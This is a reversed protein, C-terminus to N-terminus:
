GKYDPAADSGLFEEYTAAGSAHYAAAAEPGIYRYHWPEFEYGTTGTQGDPYRLIFGYKWANAALWQGGPQEAYCGELPCAGGVTSIDAALGTQHESFGPRASTADAGAQGLQDVYRDYLSTQLEFDRYGSTMDLELGDQAAAAFMDKVAMAADHRLSHGNASSVGIDSMAVLDDPAYDQPSLPHHKNVLVQLSSASAIDLGAPNSASGTGPASTSAAAGTEAPAQSAAAGETSAPAQTSGPAQVSPTATSQQWGTEQGQGQGFLRPLLLWALLGALVLLVGAVLLRRRAAGPAATRAATASAALPVARGPTRADADADPRPIPPVTRDASSPSKSAAPKSSATGSAAPKAASTARAADAAPRSAAAGAGAAAASGATRGSPAANTRRSAPRPVELDVDAYIDPEVYEATLPEVGEPETERERGDTM